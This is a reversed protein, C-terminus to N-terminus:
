SPSNTGPVFGRRYIAPFQYPCVTSGTRSQRQTKPRYAKCRRPSFGYHAAFAAMKANVEWRCNGLNYVFATKMNDFLIEAPIGGFHRFANIMCAFLVSQEMSTTFEIYSRRSYGLKMIFAYRKVKRGNIVVHGAYMWDVQAQQGPLTEFRRVALNRLEDRKKSIYDRLITIKGTYGRLLLKQFLIEANLSFDQELESDIFSTLQSLKGGGRPRGRSKGSCHVKGHEYNYVSRVSIHLREAVAQRSYGEQLLIKAQHMLAIGEM